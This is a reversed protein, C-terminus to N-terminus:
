AAAAARRRHWRHLSEFAWEALPVTLFVAWTPHPIGQMLWMWLFFVVCALPYFGELFRLVRRYRVADIVMYYAPILALLFLGYAWPSVLGGGAHAAYAPAFFGLVLYVLLVLLPFPFRLWARLPRSGGEWSKGWDRGKGFDKRWDSGWDKRAEHWSKSWPEEAKGDKIRIGQWGVHVEDGTKADKVHVGDRFNINVYGNDSDSFESGDAVFGGGAAGEGTGGAAGDTGGAAGAGGAAGDDGSGAGKEGRREAAKDAAEFAVDDEIAPDVNLLDDLSVGYLRALAILNDTDPSSESREWKSVAQRTVGLREALAEQSLGAEKRRNALRGAIDVNM